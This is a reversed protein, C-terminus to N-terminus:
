LPLFLQIYISIAVIDYKYITISQHTNGYSDFRLITKDLFISFKTSM